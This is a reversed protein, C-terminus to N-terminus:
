CNAVTMASWISNLATFVGWTSKGVEAMGKFVKNTTIRKNHCVAIKTSDVFSIGTCSGFGILRIFM